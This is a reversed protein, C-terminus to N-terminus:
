KQTAPNGAISDPGVRIFPNGFCEFLRTGQFRIFSGPVIADGQSSREHSPQHQENRNSSGGKNQITHTRTNRQCHCGM